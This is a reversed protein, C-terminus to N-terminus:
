VESNSLDNLSVKAAGAITASMSVYGAVLVVLVLICHPLLALREACSRTELYLVKHPAHQISFSPTFFCPQRMM